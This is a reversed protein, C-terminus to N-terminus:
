YPNTEAMTWSRISRVTIAEDESFVRVGVSTELEPYVIQTLAQRGNAFVEIISRDLFIDLKLTEGKKLKLPAKQESVKKTFQDFISKSADYEEANFVPVFTPGRTSSRRIDIVLQEREPEYRIITEERGDPSAFVKVGFSSRSRNAFELQLEMSKGAARLTREENARLVVKGEMVENLRITRLEEAPDIQLEGVGNLSLVRPLSMVGSWGYDKLGPLKAGEGWGWDVVWGWIINRGRPDRLQEPAFFSGGPWNMRGHTEPTFKSDAFSGIYYQAGYAHSIFLLMSKNGLAFFDPCSIDEFSERMSDKASIVNGLYQWEALDRSRFLGPKMWGSIQYYYGSRMDYWVEPDFVTYKEPATNTLIPTRV